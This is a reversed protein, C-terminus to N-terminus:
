LEEHQYGHSSTQYIIEEHTSFAHHTSHDDHPQEDSILESSSSTKPDISTSINDLNDESESNVFEQKIYAVLKKEYNDRDYYEQAERRPKYPNENLLGKMEKEIIKLSDLMHTDDGKFLLYSLGSRYSEEYKKVEYYAMQLYQYHGAFLFEYYKGRVMGMEQTCNRKCYLANTFHNAISSIFDPLFGHDFEGECYARCQNEDYIFQMISSEMLSIVEEWKQDNIKLIGAVFMKVFKKEELDLIEEKDVGPKELAAEFNKQMVTDGPHKVMYTLAASAALTVQNTKTYCAHLYTYAQRHKFLDMYYGDYDEEFPLQIGERSRCKRICLTRRIILEYFRLNEVDTEHLFEGKNRINRSAYECEIRCNATSEYYARYKEVANELFYVCDEFENGLYSQVGQEYLDIFSTPQPQEEEDNEDCEIVSKVSCIRTM